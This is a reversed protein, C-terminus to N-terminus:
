PRWAAVCRCGATAAPASSVRRRHELLADRLNHGVIRIAHKDVTCKAAAAVRAADERRQARITLEVRKVHVRVRDGRPLLEGLLICRNTM